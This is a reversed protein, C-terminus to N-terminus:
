DDNLQSRRKALTRLHAKEQRVLLELEVEHARDRLQQLEDILRQEKRTRGIRGRVWDLVQQYDYVVPQNSGRHVGGEKAWGPGKPPDGNRWEGLTNTHVGLFRAAAKNSIWARLGARAEELERDVSLGRKIAM